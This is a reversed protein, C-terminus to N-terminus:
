WELVYGGGDEEIYGHTSLSKISKAFKIADQKNFKKSTWGEFVSDTERDIKGTGEKFVKKCKSKKSQQDDVNFFAVVLLKLELEEKMQEKFTKM